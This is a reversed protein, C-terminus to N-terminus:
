AQEGSLLAVGEIVLDPQWQMQLSDIKLMGADGGTVLIPISRIKAKIQECQQEIVRKVGGQASFIVGAVIADRTSNALVQPRSAFRKMDENSITHLDQAAGLGEFMMRLGPMIVGGRHRGSADLVDVTIATGADIVICAAEHIRARAGVLAAWRDVGLRHPDHYGNVVGCCEAATTLWVVPSSFCRQALVSIQVAIAEGRVNCAFLECSAIDGLDQWQQALEDISAAIHTHSSVDLRWKIRSNGVDLYISM